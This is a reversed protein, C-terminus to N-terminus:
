ALSKQEIAEKKLQEALETGLYWDILFHGLYILPTLVVAMLFKYSYNVLGVALFLSIEWKAPGLVFAIYLVVFSDIFQSILTSGTARLWVKEDKTLRRIHHFILADVVQGILFAILSGAIIWMGQGFIQAFALQMDPVGNSAYSAPWWEAPTLAIAAFVMMFAYAIFGAALYSLLRVGRWGYYENIIDTMIFVVPWLLVGATLNLSGKHGFIDWNLPAIGLTDELAFIKVGIFEAVIANTIFFGALIIFLLVPKRSLISKMCLHKSILIWSQFGPKKNNWDDELLM